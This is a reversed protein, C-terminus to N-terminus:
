STSNGDAGASQGRRRISISFNYRDGRYLSSSFEVLRGRRDASVRVVRLAPSRSNLGLLDADAKSLTVASMTQDARAIQVRYRLRLLEYLSGDLDHDLLGSFLRQPLYTRELCMPTGDALRVRIIEVVSSGPELALREAVTESAFAERANIVRSGPELGRSRMDESFSTLEPGKLIRPDSVFTGQGSVAYLLGEGVLDTIARRVTMRSVRYREALDRERPLVAHPKQTQIEDLLKSRITVYKFSL